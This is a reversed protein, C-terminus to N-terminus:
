STVTKSVSLLWEDFKLQTAADTIKGDASMKGRVGQILLCNKDSVSAEITKLILKLEELTKEGQASAVLVAVTKASFVSNSVSWELLNKLGAPVSFIYEPTSIIILNANRIKEHVSLIRQPLTGIAQNANFLPLSQLDDFLEYHWTNPLQKEILQLLKLNSSQSSASGCIGLVNM